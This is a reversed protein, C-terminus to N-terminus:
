RVGSREPPAPLADRTFRVPVVAEGERDIWGWRGDVLESHGGVPQRRCGQCVRAFGSEFPFAFDWAAPIREELDQDIFGIKGGRESRAFGERFADPGNDHWLVRRLRGDRNAYYAAGEIVLPVLPNGDPEIRIRAAATLRLDGDSIREACAVIRTDVEPPFLDCDLTIRNPKACALILVLASFGLGIGCRRTETM